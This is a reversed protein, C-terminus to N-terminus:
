ILDAHLLENGQELTNALKEENDDILPLVQRTKKEVLKNYILYNIGCLALGVVGLAIGGIMAPLSESYLMTLSMGGGLILAAICGFIYAFVSASTTKSKELKESVDFLQEARRQLKTLEQKHKLKRDRKFSLTVNDVVSPTTSTIEWGFSEYMDAAKTQNKVKVTKTMYEYSVFDQEKM